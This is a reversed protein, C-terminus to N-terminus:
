SITRKKLQGSLEVWQEFSLSQARWDHPVKAETFIERLVPKSLALDRSLANILMQRKHRFGAEVAPYFVSDAKAKQDIELSVIASHTKPSPYFSGPKVTRILKAKANAEVLITLFGRDSSGARAVIREAMEKQVLLVVRTPKITLSFTKRLLPSTISYPINSVLKYPDGDLTWDVRLADGRIIKLRRHKKLRLYNAFEYDIEIAIVKKAHELLAFTLAGLGPGIEVVTEEESLEAAEVMDAIVAPDVLFNQGFLKKPYKKLERLIEAPRM